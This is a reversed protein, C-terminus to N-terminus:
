KMLIGPTKPNEKLTEAWEMFAKKNRKAWLYHQIRGITWYKIFRWFPTYIKMGDYNGHKNSFLSNRM